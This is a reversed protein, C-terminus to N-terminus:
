RSRALLRSLLNQPQVEVIATARYLPVQLFTWVATAAVVLMFVAVVTWRGQWVVRWYDRLHAQEFVSPAPETVPPTRM